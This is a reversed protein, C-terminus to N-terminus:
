REGDARWVRMERLEESPTREGRVVEAYTPPPLESKPSDPMKQAM